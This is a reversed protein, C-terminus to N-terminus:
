SEEEYRVETRENGNLMTEIGRESLAILLRASDKLGREDTTTSLNDRDNKAFGFGFFARQGCRCAIITRFGASKAKGPRAVRQKILGGGLDAAILGREAPEVAGNLIDSFCESAHFVYEEAVYRLFLSAPVRAIV